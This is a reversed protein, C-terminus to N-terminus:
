IGAERGPTSPISGCLARKCSFRDPQARRGGSDGIYKKCSSSARSRLVTTPLKKALRLLEPDGLEKLMPWIGSDLVDVVFNCIM